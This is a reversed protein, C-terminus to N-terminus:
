GGGVLRRRARDPRGRRCGPEGRAEARTQWPRSHHPRARNRGVLRGASRCREVDALRRRRRAIRAMRARLGTQRDVLLASGIKVTIARYKRLSGGSM